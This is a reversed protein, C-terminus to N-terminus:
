FHFDVLVLAASPIEQADKLFVEVDSSGWDLYYFLSDSCWANDLLKIMREAYHTSLRFPADGRAAVLDPASLVNRWEKGYGRNTETLREAVQKDGAVAEGLIHATGTIEPLHRVEAGTLSDRFSLFCENQLTLLDRGIRQIEVLDTVVEDKVTYYDWWLDGGIAGLSVDCRDKIGAVDGQEVGVLGIWHNVHM